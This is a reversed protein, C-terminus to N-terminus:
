PLIRFFRALIYGLVRCLTTKKLALKEFCRALIYGWVRCLTVKRLASSAFMECFYLRPGPMTNNKELCCECFDRLLIAQSGAYHQKNLALNRSIECSYVRFVVAISFLSGSTMLSQNPRLLPSRGPPPLHPSPRFHYTQLPFPDLISPKPQSNTWDFRLPAGSGKPM